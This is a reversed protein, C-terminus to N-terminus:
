AEDQVAEFQVRDYLESLPLHCDLSPLALSDSLETYVTLLCQDGPQRAYHEVSVKEQAILIYDQLAEVHRYHAFKEGRDYAETSESLVEVVVRPNLLVDGSRDLFEPEGCVVSVDPYTYLGTANVRVRMDSPYTECPRGKMQNGFERVANGTILNHARSAGAMAFIEGSFYESKGEAQRERELYQEPTWFPKALTSM